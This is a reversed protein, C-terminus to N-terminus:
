EYKIGRHHGEARGHLRHEKVGDCGEVVQEQMLLSGFHGDTQSVAQLPHYGKQLFAVGLKQGDSCVTQLQQRIAILLALHPQKHTHVAYFCSKVGTSCRVKDKTHVSYTTQNPHAM